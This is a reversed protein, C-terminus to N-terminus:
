WPSYTSNLDLTWNVNWEGYHVILKTRSDEARNDKVIDFRKTAVGETMKSTREM